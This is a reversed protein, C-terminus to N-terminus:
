SHGEAEDGDGDVDALRGLLQGLAGGAGGALAVFLALGPYATVLCFAGLGAVTLAAGAAAYIITERM